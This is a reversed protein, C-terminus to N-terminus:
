FLQGNHKLSLDVWIVTKAGMVRVLLGVCLTVCKVALDQM